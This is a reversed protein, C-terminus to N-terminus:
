RPPNSSPGSSGGVGLVQFNKVGPALKVAPGPDRYELRGGLVGGSSANTVNMFGYGKQKRKYAAAFPNLVLVHSAYPAGPRGVAVDWGANEEFYPSVLTLESIGHSGDVYIGAGSAPDEPTGNYESILRNFLAGHIREILFGHGANQGAYCNTCDLTTPYVGSGEKADGIRFGSKGCSTARVDRLSTDLGGGVNVGYRGVGNVAVNWAKFWTASDIKMGDRCKGPSEAFISIGSVTSKRGAGSGDGIVLGDAAGGVVFKLSSTGIGEGVIHLADCTVRLTRKIVYVGRPIFVTGGEGQGRDNSNILPRCAAKIAKEFAETDRDNDSGDGVAGFQKVDFGRDVAPEAALLLAALLVAMHQLM